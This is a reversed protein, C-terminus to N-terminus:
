PAQTAPPAGDPMPMSSEAVPDEPPPTDPPLLAGLLVLFLVVGIIGLGIMMDRNM